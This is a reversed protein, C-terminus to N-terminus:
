SATALSLGHASRNRVGKMHTQMAKITAAADVKEAAQLIAGHEALAQAVDYEGHIITQRMRHQHAGLDAAMQALFRNKAFRMLVKHFGEDAAFYERYTRLDVPETKLRELVETTATTHLAHARRLEPLLEPLAKVAWRTAQVELMERAGMLELMQTPSFPEAVRYGKFGERTVLGTRELHVLAERVPTPSVNLRAALTEIGLREGPKMANSM